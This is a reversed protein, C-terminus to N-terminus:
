IDLSYAKTKKLFINLTQGNKKRKTAMAVLTECPILEKSGNQFPVVLPVDRHLKILILRSTKPPYITQLFIHISLCVTVVSLSHDCYSVRAYHEPSSFMGFVLICLFFFIWINSELVLKIHQLLLNIYHTHVIQFWDWMFASAIDLVCCFDHKEWLFFAVSQMELMCHLSLYLIYSFYSLHRWFLFVHTDFESRRQQSIFIRLFM